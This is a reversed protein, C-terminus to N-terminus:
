TIVNKYEGVMKKLFDIMEDYTGSWYGAVRGSYKPEEYATPHVTIPRNWLIKYYDHNPKKIIYIWADDVLWYSNILKILEHKLKNLYNFKCNCKGEKIYCQGFDLYKIGQCDSEHISGDNYTTIIKM